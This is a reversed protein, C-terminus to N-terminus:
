SWALKHCKKLGMFDSDSLGGAPCRAWRLAANRRMPIM